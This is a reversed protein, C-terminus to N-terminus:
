EYNMYVNNDLKKKKGKDTIMPKKIKDHPFKGKKFYIMHSKKTVMFYTM